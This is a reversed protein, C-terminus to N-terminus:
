QLARVTPKPKAAAALGPHAPHQTTLPPPTYATACGLFVCLSAISALRWPTYASTGRWTELNLRASQSQSLM